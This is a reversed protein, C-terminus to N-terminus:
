VQNDSIKILGQTVLSTTWICTLIEIAKIPHKVNRMRLSYQIQRTRFVEMNRQGSSQCLHTKNREETQRERSEASELSSSVALDRTHKLCTNIQQM